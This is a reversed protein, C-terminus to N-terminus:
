NSADNFYNFENLCALFVDLEDTHLSIRKDEWLDIKENTKTQFSVDYGEGNTWEAIQCFSDTLGNIEFAVVKGEGYKKARYYNNEELDKQQINFWKAIKQKLTKKM